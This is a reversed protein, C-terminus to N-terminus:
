RLLMESIDTEREVIADVQVGQWKLGNKPEQELRGHNEKAM